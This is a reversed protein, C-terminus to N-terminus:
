RFWAGFDLLELDPLPDTESYAVERPKPSQLRPNPSKTHICPSSSGSVL